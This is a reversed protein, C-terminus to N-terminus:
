NVSPFQDSLQGFIQEFGASFAITTNLFNKFADDTAETAGSTGSMSFDWKASVAVANYNYM